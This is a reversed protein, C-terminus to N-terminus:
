RSAHHARYRAGAPAIVVGDPFIYLLSWRRAGRDEGAPSNIARRVISEMTVPRTEGKGEEYTERKAHFILDGYSPCM